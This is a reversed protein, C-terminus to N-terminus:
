PKFEVMARRGPALASLNIRQQHYIITHDVGPSGIRLVFSGLTYNMKDITIWGDKQTLQGHGPWHGLGAGFIRFWTKELVLGREPDLRFQEFIPKKDVSHIYRITVRDGSKVKLSLIIKGSDFNRVILHPQRDATAAASVLEPQLLFLFILGTALVMTWTSFFVWPPHPRM